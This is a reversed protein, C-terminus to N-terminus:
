RTWWIHSISWYCTYHASFSCIVTSNNIVVYKQNSHNKKSNQVNLKTVILLDHMINNFFINEIIMRCDLNLSATSMYVMLEYCCYVTKGLRWLQLIYLSMNMIIIISGHQNMLLSLETITNTILELATLLWVCDSIPPVDCVAVTLQLFIVFVLIMFISYQFSLIINFVFVNQYLSISLSYFYCM